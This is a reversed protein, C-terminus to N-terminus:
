KGGGQRRLPDRITGHCTACDTPLPKYRIPAATDKSTPRHCAACAVKRHQDGLAFRSDREHDFVLAKFDDATAHCRACDTRDAGAFQGAHVDAHCQECRRGRAAEWTRGDADAVLRQPHCSTCEARAHAGSLAFGTWRGHDFGQEYSRFSTEVHCRACGREGERDFRGAHPDRHCPTCDTFRSASAAIRGFRRGHADATAQPTHCSSCESQAHAGRIPFHADRGHDFAEALTQDFHAAGHCRACDTAGAHDAFFGGHADAHCAECAPATGAFRRPVSPSPRAHCDECKAQLHSGELVFGSRAHLEPTVAHPTFHTREHCGICGASAFPGTDFQGEHPDGHCARCDDPARRAHRSAFDAGDPGHCQVCAVKDHPLDLPFGLAAHQRPTVTAEDGFRRHEPRHCASCSADPAKDLLKGIVATFDARHPSAHCDACDRRAPAGPARMTELAHASGEEHCARCSVGAHGGALSLVKDHDRAALVHFDDQGHCDACDVHMRGQHVDEHCGKCDRDLGAFRRTDKELVAREAHPHCKACDQQLHKGEMRYGVLEHDFHKPDPVGAAAFSARNVVAFDTGHHESHCEGCASSRQAGLTGHLGRHGDIQEQIPAHCSLCASTMDGFLGGHCQACSRRGELGAVQGHVASLPGPSTRGTADVAIWGVILTSLSGIWLRPDTWKM